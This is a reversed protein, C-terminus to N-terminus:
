NTDEEEECKEEDKLEIEGENSIEIEVTKGDLLGEIEYYIERVEEIEEIKLGPFKEKLLKQSIEPLNKSDIEKKIEILAGDQTFIYSIEAGDDKISIEYCIINESEKEMEIELIMELKAMTQFSKQVLEPLEAFSLMASDELEDASLLVSMTLVAFLILYKLYKM